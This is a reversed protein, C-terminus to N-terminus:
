KQQCGYARLDLGHAKEQRNSEGVDMAVKDTNLVPFVLHGREDTDGVRAEMADRHRPRIILMKLVDNWDKSEGVQRNTLLPDKLESEIQKLDGIAHRNMASLGERQLELHKRGLIERAHFRRSGEGLRELLMTKANADALTDTCGLTLGPSQFHIRDLAGIM